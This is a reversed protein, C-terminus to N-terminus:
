VQLPDRLMLSVGAAIRAFALCAKLQDRYEPASCHEVTIRARESSNKGRLDAAGHEAALVQVSVSHDMHSVMPAIASIKGGEQMSPCTFISIFPKRAFDAIGNMM